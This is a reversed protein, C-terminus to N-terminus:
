ADGGKALSQIPLPVQDFSVPIEVLSISAERQEDIDTMQDKLFIVDKRKVVKM